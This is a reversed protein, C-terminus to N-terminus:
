PAAHAGTEIWPGACTAVAPYVGVPQNCRYSFRPAPPLPAAIATGARRPSGPDGTSPLGLLIAPALLLGLESRRRYRAHGRHDRSWDRDRPPDKNSHDFAWVPVPLVQTALTLFVAFSVRSTRVM